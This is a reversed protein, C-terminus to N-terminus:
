YWIVERRSTDCPTASAPLVEATGTAIRRATWAAAAADLLDDAAVIGADSLQDPLVIGQSRILARREMQGNWSRKAFDLTGGKIACFSVEPHVEVLRPDRAAIPHVELIKSRLAYAQASIGSGHCKKSLRNAERYTGAELVAQHPTHFVSSSRKGVFTRAAVDCERHLTAQPLGIPIDLALVSFDDLERVVDEVCPRVFASLFCGDELVVVVWRGKWVDAGAVCTM